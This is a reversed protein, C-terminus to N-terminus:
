KNGNTLADRWMFWNKVGSLTDVAVVRFGYKEYLAVNEIKDTELYAAEKGSDAILCFRELLASGIGNGQMAPLVGLPGFHLHREKPDHKAWNAKWKLVGPLRYGLIGFMSPLMGLTKLPPIQCCGPAYYNMLGVIRGDKWATFLNCQPLQLVEIFMRTQMQEAKEDAAGFVALHLPNRLMAQAVVSAAEPINGPDPGIIKMDM